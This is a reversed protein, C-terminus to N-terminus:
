GVTGSGVISVYFGIPRANGTCSGKKTALIAAITGTATFSGTIGSYAGTGKVITVAGTASVVFSCTTTDSTSPSASTIAKKLGATSVLITGQKLKLLDFGTDKTTPKGAATATTSTGFDAIAGTFLVKGPDKVSTTAPSPTVWLEAHGSPGTGAALAVSGPIAAGLVTAIGIAIWSRRKM